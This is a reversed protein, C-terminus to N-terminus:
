EELWMDPSWGVKRLAEELAERIDAAPAGLAFHASNQLSRVILPASKSSNVYEVYDFFSDIFEEAALPDDWIEPVAVSVYDSSARRLWRENQLKKKVRDLHSGFRSVRENLPEGVDLHRSTLLKHFQGFSQRARSTVSGDSIGNLLGRALQKIKRAKKGSSAEIKREVRSRYADPVWWGFCTQVAEPRLLLRGRKEDSVAGQLGVAPDYTMGANRTSFGPITVASRSLAERTADPLRLDFRFQALTSPRYYLTGARMLQPLSHPLPEDEDSLAVARSDLRALYTRVPSPLSTGAVRLMIEENVSFAATTANASGVYVVSHNPREFVLLKPHFLGPARIVRVDLRKLRSLPRTWRGVLERLVAEDDQKRKGYTGNLVIHLSTKRRRSKPIAELVEELFTEDFFASVISIKKSHAAMELADEKRLQGLDQQGGLTSSLWSYAYAM